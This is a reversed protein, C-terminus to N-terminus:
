CLSERRMRPDAFAKAIDIVFNILAFFFIFIMICALIMPYDRAAIGQMMLRGIGPWSFLYETIILGTFYVGLHTKLSTLVPIIINPLAHKFIIKGGSLGKAQATRIYDKKMIDLMSSRATLMMASLMAYGLVIGPLIVSSWQAAGSLPIWSIHRSFFLILLMGVWMLPISIGILAIIMSGKGIWTNRKVAAIIGAPVALLMSFLLAALSLLLTYPLRTMIEANISVGRWWRFSSGFDGMLFRVIYRSYRVWLPEPACMVCSYFLCAERGFWYCASDRWLAVQIYPIDSMEMIMFVMFTSGAIVPILGLLRKFIYKLM